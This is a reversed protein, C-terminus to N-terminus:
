CIFNQRSSFVNVLSRGNASAPQATLVRLRSNEYIAKLKEPTFDSYHRALITKPVRGQFADVYRDQVGLKGMECAFWDRLDKPRIRVGSQRAASAFAKRLGQPGIDFIRGKRSTIHESVLDDCEPSYFSCWSKKTSGEHNKPLIARNPTDLDDHNLTLIEMERLGSSALMLFILRHVSGNLGHYFRQLQEVTPVQKPTFPIAPYRFSDTIPSGLFRKYFCRFGRILNAKTNPAANAYNALIYNRLDERTALRLDKDLWKAFCRITGTYAEISRDCLQLDVKAVKSFETLLMLPNAPLGSASPQAPVRNTSNDPLILHIDGLVSPPNCGVRRGM